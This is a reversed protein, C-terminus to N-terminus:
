RRIVQVIWISSLLLWAFMIVLAVGEILSRTRAEEDTRITPAAESGSVLSLQLPEMDLASSTGKPFQPANCNGSATSLGAVTKTGRAIVYSEIFCHYSPDGVSFELTADNWKKVELRNVELDLSYDGWQLYKLTTTAVDCFGSQRVCNIISINLPRSLTLYLIRDHNREAKWTGQASVFGKDWDDTDVKPLSHLSVPTPFLHTSFFIRGVLIVCLGALMMVVIGAVRAAKSGM